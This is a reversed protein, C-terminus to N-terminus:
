RGGICSGCRGHIKSMGGDQSTRGAPLCITWGKKRRCLRKEGGLGSGGKGVGLVATLVAGGYSAIRKAVLTIAPRGEGEGGQFM